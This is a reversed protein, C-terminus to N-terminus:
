PGPFYALMQRWDCGCYFCEPDPLGTVLLEDRSGELAVVRVDTCGDHQRTYLLRASDASWQPWGDIGDGPRTLARTESTQPSTVYIARGDLTHELTEGNGHADPSAPVAAYTLLTGDPSWTPEFVAMEEDTLYTLDSTTVDLLALRKNANIFRGSGEALALLGPQTPHWAYAEPTLLMWANLDTIEGTDANITVLTGGDEFLSASMPGRGALILRAGPAWDLIHYYTERFNDSLRWVAIEASGDAPRVYLIQEWQGTEALQDPDLTWALWGDQSWHMKVLRSEGLAGLPLLQRPQGEPFPIAELAGDETLRALWDSADPFADPPAWFPSTSHPIGYTAAVKGDHRYVASAGEGLSALLYEGSPSWGHPAGPTEGLTWAGGHQLDIVTTRYDFPPRADVFALRGGTLPEDQLCGPLGPYVAACDIVADAGPFEEGTPVILRHGVQLFEPHETDNAALIAEVSVGYHAAISLITDGEQIVHTIPTLTAPPAGGPRKRYSALIQILTEKVPLYDEYTAGEDVWYGGYDIRTGDELHVFFFESRFTAEDDREYIEWGDALYIQEDIMVTETIEVIAYDGVGTVGCPGGYKGGQDPPPQITIFGVGYQLGVCIDDPYIESLWVIYEASTMNDPLEETPYGTVGQTSIEAEPPHSFEYDYFENRYVFWGEVVTSTLIPTPTPTPLAIKERRAAIRALAADGDFGHAFIRAQVDPPFLDRVDEGHFSGDRPMDVSHVHGDPGINIVAPASVAAGSASECLAWVYVEQETQGWVEWECLAESDNLLRDALAPELEDRALATWQTPTPVLTEAPPPPAPSACATLSLTLLIGTVLVLTLTRKM